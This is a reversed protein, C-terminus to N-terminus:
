NKKNQQSLLFNTSNLWLAMKLYNIYYMKIPIPNASYIGTHFEQVTIFYLPFHCPSTYVQNSFPVSIDTYSNLFTYTTGKLNLWGLLKSGMINYFIISKVIYGILNGWTKRPYNRGMINTKPDKVWMACQMSKLAPHPSIYIPKIRNEWSWKDNRKQQWQQKRGNHLIM